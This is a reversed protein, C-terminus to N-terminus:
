TMSRGPKAARALRILNKESIELKEVGLLGKKEWKQTWPKGKMKVKIDNVPVPSGEPLPVPEMDLPFTSYEPLADRLYQLDKDLRKELKLVDIKQITPDYM